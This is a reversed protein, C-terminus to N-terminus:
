GMYLSSGLENNANGLSLPVGKSLQSTKLIESTCILFVTFRLMCKNELTELIYTVKKKIM